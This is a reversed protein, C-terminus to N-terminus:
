VANPCAIRDDYLANCNQATRRFAAAEKAGSLTAGVHDTVPDAPPKEM